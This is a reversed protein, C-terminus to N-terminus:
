LVTRKREEKDDEERGERVRREGERQDGGHIRRRRHYRHNALLPTWVFRFTRRRNEQLSWVEGVVEVVVLVQQNAEFTALSFDGLGSCALFGLLSLKDPLCLSSRPGLPRGGFFRAAGTSSLEFASAAGGGGFRGRPRGGFARAGSGDTTSDSCNGIGFVGGGRRM